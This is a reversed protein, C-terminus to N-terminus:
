LKKQNLEEELTNLYAMLFEHRKSAIKNAEKTNILDKIKILKDYFHQISSELRTGFLPRHNAGGYAFTRAIGIAGIADLRDADQVIRGEISTVKSGSAMKHYSMHNIIATVQEIIKKDVQMQNMWDRAQICDETKVKNVKYDDIDHLVSALSIVLIDGGEKIQLHKAMEYVRLIHDISHGSSVLKLIQEVHQITQDILQKM